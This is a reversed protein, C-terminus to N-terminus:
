KQWHGISVDASEGTEVDTVRASTVRGVGMLRAVIHRLADWSLAEEGGVTYFFNTPDNPVSKFGVTLGFTPMACQGFFRLVSDVDERQAKGMVVDCAGADFPMKGCIMVAKVNSM